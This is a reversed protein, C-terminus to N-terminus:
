DIGESRAQHNEQRLLAALASASLSGEGASFTALTGASINADSEIAFIQECRSRVAEQQQIHREIPEPIAGRAIKQHGDAIVKTAQVHLFQIRDLRKKDGKRWVSKECRMCDGHKPCPNLSWSTVCGGVETFQKPGANQFLFASRNVVKVNAAALAVPGVVDIKSNPDYGEVSSKVIEEPTRLDYHAAQRGDTRGALVNLLQESVGQLLASTQHHKRTDHLTFRPFQGNSLRIDLTDFLLPPQGSNGDIWKLVWKRDAFIPMWWDPMRGVRHTKSKSFTDFSLFLAQDLRTKRDKGTFPWHPFNKKNKFRKLLHKSVEEVAGFRQVTRGAMLYAFEMGAQQGQDADVQRSLWTAAIFTTSPLETVKHPVPLKLARCLQVVDDRLLYFLTRRVNGVVPFYDGPSDIGSRQSFNQGSIVFDALSEEQLAEEEFANTARKREPTSIRFHSAQFFREYQPPIYLTDISSFDEGFKELYFSFADRAPQSFRRVQEFAERALDELLRPVPISQYVDSKPRYVAIHLRGDAAPELADARLGILDSLRLSTTTFPLAAVAAMVSVEHDPGFRDHAKRYALGVAAVTENSIRREQNKAVRDKDMRESARGGGARVSSRFSFRSKLLGFGGDGYRFSKSHHGGQLMGSLAELDKSVEYRVSTCLDGSLLAQEARIFTELRTNSPDNEGDNCQRLAWEVLQLAIVLSRSATRTGRYLFLVNIYAKAFALFRGASIMASPDRVIPDGKRTRVWVDRSRYRHEYKLLPLRTRKDGQGLLSPHLEFWPLEPCFGEAHFQDIGAAGGPQAWAVFEDFRAPSAKTASLFSPFPARM